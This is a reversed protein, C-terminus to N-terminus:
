ATVRPRAKEIVQWAQYSSLLQRRVSPTCRRFLWYVWVAQAEAGLYGLRGLPTSYRSSLQLGGVGGAHKLIHHPIAALQATRLGSRPISKMIEARSPDRSRRAQSGFDEAQHYILALTEPTFLGQLRECMAHPPYGAGYGHMHCEFSAENRGRATIIFAGFGFPARPDSAAPAPQIALAIMREPPRHRNSRQM